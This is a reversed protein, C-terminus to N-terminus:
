NLRRRDAGPEARASDGEEARGATEDEFNHLHQLPRDLTVPTCSAARVWDSLIPVSHMRSGNRATPLDSTLLTIPKRDERKIRMRRPAVPEALRYRIRSPFMWLVRAITGSKLGLAPRRADNAVADRSVSIQPRLSETSIAGRSENLGVFPALLGFEAAGLRPCIPNNGVGPFRALGPRSAPPASPIM